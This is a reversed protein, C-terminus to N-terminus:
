QGIQGPTVMIKGNLQMSGKRRESHAVGVAVAKLGPTLDKGIEIAVEHLLRALADDLEGKTKAAIVDLMSAAGLAMKVVVKKQERSLKASILKALLPALWATVAFVLAALAPTVVILIEKM